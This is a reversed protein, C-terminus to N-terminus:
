AALLFPRAAADVDAAMGGFFVSCVGVSLASISGRANKGLGHARQPRCSVRGGNMLILEKVRTEEEVLGKAKLATLTFYCGALPGAAGSRM